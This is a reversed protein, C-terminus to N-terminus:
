SRLAAAVEDRGSVQLKRYVASLQSEVTKLSVFLADAIDRNTRGTGALRAVRLEAPTLAAIGSTAVTRRRAGARELEAAAITALRAAGIANAQDFARALVHRAARLDGARRLRRGRDTLVTAHLLPGADAALNAALSALEDAAARHDDIWEAAVRRSEALLWADGVREAAEIQDAVLQVASDHDGLARRAIALESRWPLVTGGGGAGLFITGAAAFAREADVQDGDALAVRGVASLYWAYVQSDGWRAAADEVAVLRRAAEPRGRELEACAAVYIAPASGYRSATPANAALGLAGEADAVADALRGLRLMAYARVPLLSVHAALEGRETADDILRTLLLDADTPRGAMAMATGIPEYVPRVLADPLVDGAHQATEIMRDLRGPDMDVGLARQGARMAALLRIHLSPARRREDVLRDVSIDLRPGHGALLSASDRGVLLRAVLMATEPGSQEAAGVAVRVPVDALGLHALARDCTREAAAFQGTTYRAEAIAALFSLLHGTAASSAATTDDVIADIRDSASRDGGAALALALDLAVPRRDEDAGSLAVAAELLEVARSPSGLIRQRAAARRLTAVMWPSPHCAGRGALIHEVVAEDRAGGAHLTEAAKAHLGVRGVEGVEALVMDEILAHRITPRGDDVVVLGSQVLQGIVSAATDPDVDAVTAVRDPRAQRGLVSIAAAVRGAGVGGAGLRALTARRIVTSQPDLEDALAVDAPHDPSAGVCLDASERALLPNGGAASSIRERVEVPADGLREDVIARISGADLEPLWRREVRNTSLAADLEVFADATNATPPRRAVVLGIAADDLRDVISALVAASEEDALHADDVVILLPDASALDRVACTVGHVISYATGNFPTPDTELLDLARRAPGHLMEPLRDALAQDLRQVLRGSLAWPAGQTHTNGAVQVTTIGRRAARDVAVDLLTSKGIGAHGEIVIAAGRGGAVTAILDDLRDLEPERGYIM